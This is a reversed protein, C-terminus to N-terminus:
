SARWYRSPDPLLRLGVEALVGARPWRIETVLAVQDSLKHADSDIIAVAGRRLSPGYTSVPLMATTTVKALARDLAVFEAAAAATGADYVAPLELHHDVILPEGRPTRYRRVSEVCVASVLETPALYPGPGITLRGVYRAARLDRAYDVVIRNAIRSDDVRIPSSLSISQDADLDLRLTADAPRADLRWLIPSLGRGTMVLSIPLMPLVNERLWTWPSIRDAGPEIVADINWASLYSRLARFAAVDVTLGTQSVAWEVVDAANRLLEGRWMMGGGTRIDDDWAIYPVRQGEVVYANNAGAEGIGYTQAGDDDAFRYWYTTGADFQYQNAPESVTWESWWPIWAVPHGRDDVGNRVRMRIEEGTDPDIAYVRGGFETAGATGIDGSLCHHGAVVLKIGYCHSGTVYTAGHEAWLGKSGGIHGTSSLSTGVVGPRGIIIPYYAGLYEANLTEVEPWTTGDIRATLPPILTPDDWLKADVSASVPEGARGWEPNRIQGQIVVRRLSWDTGEVWLAVEAQAMTLVHGWSALEPASDEIIFTVPVSADGPEGGYDGMSELLDASALGGSYRYSTGGTADAIECEASAVRVAGDVAYVTLLTLVRAAGPNPLTDM